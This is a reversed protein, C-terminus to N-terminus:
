YARSVEAGRVVMPLEEGQEAQFGVFPKLTTLSNKLAVGTAVLVKNIYFRPIRNADVRIELLYDTDNAFAIGTDYSADAGTNSVWCIWNGGDTARFFAQDNDTAATPTSTLKLGAWVISTESANPWTRIQARFHPSKTTAWETVQVISNYTAGAGGDAKVTAESLPGLIMQDSSGGATTLTVGGGTSFAVGANAANTGSLEFNKNALIAKEAEADAFTGNLNFLTGALRPLLHFPEVVKFRYGADDTELRLQHIGSPAPRNLVNSRNLQYPLNHVSM